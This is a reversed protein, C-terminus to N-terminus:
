KMGLVKEYLEGGDKCLQSLSMLVMVQVVIEGIFHQVLGGKMELMQPFRPSIATPFNGACFAWNQRRGISLTRYTFSESPASEGNGVVYCEDNPYHIFDM